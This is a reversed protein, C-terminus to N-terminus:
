LTDPEITSVTALADQITQLFTKPIPVEDCRKKKPKICRCAIFIKDKYQRYCGQTCGPAAKCYVNLNNDAVAAAYYYRGEEKVLLLWYAETQEEVVNYLVIHLEAVDNSDLIEIAEAVHTQTIEWLTNSFLDLDINCVIKGQRWEGIFVSDDPIRKSLHVAKPPLSKGDVDKSCAVISGIFLLLLSTLIFIM